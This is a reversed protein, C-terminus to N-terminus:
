NFRLEAVKMSSPNDIRQFGFLAVTSNKGRMHHRAVSFNKPILM